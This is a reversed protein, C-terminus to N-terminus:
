IELVVKGRPHQGELYRQAAAVQDLKFTKTVVPRVRQEEILQTIESLQAANPQTGYGKARVGYKGAEQENPQGLTSVLIGGRRLVKWSRERTEGGILDFVMDVDSVLDEFRQSTYDIVTQAGLGKVFELNDKSATSIVTSGRTAAFQVAFHGVGGSGAHILVRQGRQLQGYEFLGQWATMAALPVAAAEVASLNRPKSVCLAKRVAVYEAYGGTGSDLLAIVENSTASEGGQIVGCIDRGLTIPLDRQTIRPIGGERIKYDLPNVSAAEVRVLVEGEKPTPQALDELQLVEPGGFSHVRVAKM